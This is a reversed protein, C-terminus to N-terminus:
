QGTQRHKDRHRDDRLPLGQPVGFMVQEHSLGFRLKEIQPDPVM